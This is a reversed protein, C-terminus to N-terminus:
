NWEDPISALIEFDSKEVDELVDENLFEDEIDSDEIVLDPKKLMKVTNKRPVDEKANEKIPKSSASVISKSFVRNKCTNLEEIAEKRIIIFDSINLEPTYGTIEEFSSLIDKIQSSIDKEAM